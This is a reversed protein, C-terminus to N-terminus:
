FSLVLAKLKEFNPTGLGTVPDWGVTANWSAYPIVGGGPIVAGTQGNVGNCGISGGGTIDNLSTFGIAYLWPNIFGLPGKGVRFRADNLLGIIAAVVPTAASTGGSPSPQGDYIVQYDPTLSHASIDPFGRGNFNTYPEYYKKTAPSIYKNLYTEVAAEQYWARSFYNSFGGSGDVWAVEPTM